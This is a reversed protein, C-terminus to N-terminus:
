WYLNWDVFYGDEEYVSSIYDKEEDLYIMYFLAGQNIWGSSQPVPSYALANYSDLDTTINVDGYINISHIPDEGPEYQMGVLTITIDGNETSVTMVLNYDSDYSFSVDANDPFTLDLSCAEDSEFNVTYARNTEFDNTTPFLGLENDDYNDLDYISYHSETEGNDFEYGHTYHHFSNASNSKEYMIGLLSPHVCSMDNTPIQNVIIKTNGNMVLQVYYYTGDEQTIKFMATNTTHDYSVINYQDGEDLALTISSTANVHGMTMDAESIIGDHDFDEDAIGDGDIDPNTDFYGDETTDIWNANDENNFISGSNNDGETVTITYMDGNQPDTPNITHNNGETIDVNKETFNTIADGWDSMIDGDDDLMVMWEQLDEMMLECNAEEASTLNGAEIMDELQKHYTYLTDHINELEDELANEFESLETSSLEHAAYLSEFYAERETTSMDMLDEASLAEGFFDQITDITTDQIDYTVTSMIAKRRETDGVHGKYVYLLCFGHWFPM